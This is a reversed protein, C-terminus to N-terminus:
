LTVRVLVEIRVVDARPQTTLDVGSRSTLGPRLEADEGRVSVELEVGLPFDPSLADDVVASVSM